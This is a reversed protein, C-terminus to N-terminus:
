GSPTRRDFTPDPFFTYSTSGADASAGKPAVERNKWSYMLFGLVVLALGGVDYGTIQSYITAGVIAKIGFALNAVPLSLANGVTM